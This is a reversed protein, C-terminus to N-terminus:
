AKHVNRVISALFGVTFGALLWLSEWSDFGSLQVSILLGVLWLQLNSAYVAGLLDRYQKATM